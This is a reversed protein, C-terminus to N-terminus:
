ALRLARIRERLRATHSGYSAGQAWANVEQESGGLQVLDTKLRELEDQIQPFSYARLAPVRGTGIADVDSTAVGLHIRVEGESEEIGALAYGSGHDFTALYVLDQDSNVSVTHQTPLRFGWTAGRPYIVLDRGDDLPSRVHELLVSGWDLFESPVGERRARDLSVPAPNAM